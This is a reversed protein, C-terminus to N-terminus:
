EKMSFSPTYTNCDMSITAKSWERTFVGPSTESYPALPVGYDVMLEPIDYSYKLPSSYM